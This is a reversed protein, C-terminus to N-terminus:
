YIQLLVPQWYCLPRWYFGYNFGYSSRQLRDAAESSRRGGDRSTM